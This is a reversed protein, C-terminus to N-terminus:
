GWEKRREDFAYGKKEWEGIWEGVESEMWGRTEKAPVRGEAWRVRVKEVEDDSKAEEGNVVQEWQMWREVAM